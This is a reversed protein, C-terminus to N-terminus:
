YTHQNGTGDSPFAGLDKNPPTIIAADAGGTNSLSAMPFKNNLLGAKNPLAYIGTGGSYVGANLAMSGSALHFDAGSPILDNMYKLGVANAVVDYNKFGPNYKTTDVVNTGLNQGDSSDAGNVYGNFDGQQKKTFQLPEIYLMLYKSTADTRATGVYTLNNGYSTNATDSPTGKESLYTIRLGQKCNAIINNYIYGGAMTETNISGNRTAKTQRYGCNVVTNNYINVYTYSTTTGAIKLGNTAVGYCFNYAMDGYVDNKLNVGEGGTNGLKNFTNRMISVYVHQCKGICDDTSGFFWSDELILKGYAATTPVMYVTPTPDTSKAGSFLSSNNGYPGGTYEIHTWRFAMLTSTSTGQFGSWYGKYAPDNTIDNSYSSNSKPTSTTEYVTFTNQKDKTGDSVIVGNVVFMPSTGVQGNGHVLVTVGPQLYLTDGANVSVDSMIHYTKGSLMTGKLPVANGNVDKLPLTDSTIEQGIVKLPQSINSSDGSKSCSFLAVSAATLLSLSLISRKM